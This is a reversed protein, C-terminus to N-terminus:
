VFYSCTDNYSINKNAVLHAFLYYRILMNLKKSIQLLIFQGFVHEINCFFFLFVTSSYLFLLKITFHEYIDTLITTNIEKDILSFM